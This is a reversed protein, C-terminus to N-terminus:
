EPRTEKLELHNKRLDRKSLLEEVVKPLEKKWLEENHKLMYSEATVSRVKGTKIDRVYVGENVDLPITKRTEVIEVEVPPVFDLPGYLMWRDGAKREKKNEVDGFNEKAKLLLAEEEGLV